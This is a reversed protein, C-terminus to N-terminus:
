GQPEGDPLLGKASLEAIRRDIEADTMDSTRVPGGDKGTLEVKTQDGYDARFRSKVNAVWLPSNFSRDVLGSQGKDEWWSQELEKARTLATRFDEHEEAWRLMTTRPIDIAASIQVQSKGQKGLEVVEDCFKKDYKSPRGVKSM